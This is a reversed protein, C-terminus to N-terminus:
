IFTEFYLVFRGFTCTWKAGIIIIRTFFFRAVPGAPRWVMIMILAQVFNNLEIVQRGSTVNFFFVLVMVAESYNSLLRSYLFIFQIHKILDFLISFTFSNSLCEFVRLGRTVVLWWYVETHRRGFHCAGFKCGFYVLSLIFCFIDRCNFFFGFFYHM